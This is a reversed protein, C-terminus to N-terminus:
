VVPSDIRFTYTVQGVGNVPIIVPTELLTREVMYPIVHKKITSASGKTGYYNSFVGMESITIDAETNNTITYMTTYTCGADDAERTSTIIVNSNAVLGHIFDGSLTLDNVTPEATGNGFAVGSTRYVDVIYSGTHEGLHSPNALSTMLSPVFGSGGSVSEQYLLDKIPTGGTGIIGTELNSFSRGLATQFVGNANKTLM